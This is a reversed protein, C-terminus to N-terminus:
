GREKIRWLYKPWERMKKELVLVATGHRGTWVTQWHNGGKPCWQIDFLKEGSSETIKKRAM